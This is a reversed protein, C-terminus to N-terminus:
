QHLIKPTIQLIGEQEQSHLFDEIAMQHTNLFNFLKKLDEISEVNPIQIGHMGIDLAKIDGSSM